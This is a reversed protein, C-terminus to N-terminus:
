RLLGNLYGAWDQDAVRYGDSLFLSVRRAITARASRQAESLMRPVCLGQVLSLGLHLWNVATTVLFEWACCGARLVDRPFLQDLRSFGESAALVARLRALAPDEFPVPLPMVETEELRMGAM